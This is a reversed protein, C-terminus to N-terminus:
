TVQKVKLKDNAYRRESLVKAIVTPGNLDREENLLSSQSNLQQSISRALALSVAM